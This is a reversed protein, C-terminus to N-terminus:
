WAEGKLECIMSVTCLILLLKVFLVLSLGLKKEFFLVQFLDRIVYWYRVRKCGSCQKSGSHGCTVCVDEEIESANAGGGGDAGISMAGSFGTDVLFYQSALKRVGLFVVLAVLILVLVFQLYPSSTSDVAQM